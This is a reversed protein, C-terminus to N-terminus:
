IKARADQTALSTSIIARYPIAKHFITEESSEGFIERIKIEKGREKEIRNYKHTRIKVHLQKIELYPWDRDLRIKLDLLIALLDTM